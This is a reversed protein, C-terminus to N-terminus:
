KVVKRTQDRMTDITFVGQHWLWGQIFGLWRNFKGHADALAELDSVPLDLADQAMVEMQDLMWLIHAVMVTTSKGYNERWGEIQQPKARHMMPLGRLAARYVNLLEKM